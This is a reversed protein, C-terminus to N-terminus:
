QGFDLRAGETRPPQGKSCIRSVTTQTGILKSRLTLTVKFGIIEGKSVIPEEKRDIVEIGLLLAIADAGPKLLINKKADKFPKDYHVGKKLIEKKLKNLLDLGELLTSLHNSLVTLKTESDLKAQNTQNGLKALNLNKTQVVGNGSM